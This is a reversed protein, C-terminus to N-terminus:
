RKSAKPQPDIQVTATMGAVLRLGDPVQDIHVRVPVRQALRVWTFIPNVSALGAQDPQANPVNIGRAVGGVHGRILQSYGMLKITVPNGEHIRGLSTEEFYGDVWFSDTDVVSILKQGVTAYDGLQALLNTVYGNAPSRVVTRRLDLQAKAIAAKDLAVVGESQHLTSTTQQYVETSAWGEKALRAQRNENTRAYDLAAGDREAQAQAQELAIRYDAPDIEFLVDGKHVFQNDAVPLNVIRGAVEPAMTVVYARVTGDRTWPSGMYVQWTAWALLVAATVTGLTILIPVIRMRPKINDRDGAVRPPLDGGDSQRAHESRLQASSM